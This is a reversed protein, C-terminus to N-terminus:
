LGAIRGVVGCTRSLAPRRAVVVLAAAGNAAVSDDILRGLLAVVVVVSRAGPAALVITLASGAAVTDDVCRLLAIVRFVRRTRALAQRGAFHVLAVARNAAVIRDILRALLAVTDVVGGTRTPALGITLTGHAAVTDDVRWLVAVAWL